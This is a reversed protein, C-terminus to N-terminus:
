GQYPRPGRSGPGRGGPGRPRGGSRHGDRRGDRRGDQRYGDRRHNDGPRQQPIFEARKPIGWLSAFFRTISAWLGTPKQLPIVVPEIQIRAREPRGERREGRPQENRPERREGRPEGRFENRPERREGEPRPGRPGRDNRAARYEREARLESETRGGQPQSPAEAPNSGPAQDERRPRDEYRPREERRPRDEYRPREERREQGGAYGQAANGSLKEVLDAPNTIAGINPRVNGKGTNGGNGNPAGRRGYQKPQAIQGPAATPTTSGGIVSMPPLETHASELKADRLSPRNEPAPAAANQNEAPQASTDEPQM